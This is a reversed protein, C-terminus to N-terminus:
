GAVLVIVVVAAIVVAALWGVIAFEALKLWRDTSGLRADITDLRDRSAQLQDARRDIM